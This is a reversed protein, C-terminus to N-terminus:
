SICRSVLWRGRRRGDCACAGGLCVVHRRLRRGGGRAGHLHRAPLAARMALLLGAIRTIVASDEGSRWVMHILKSDFMGSADGTMSGATVCSACRARRRGRRHLLARHAARDPPARRGRADRRHLLSLVSRGRGRVHGRVAGGEGDRRLRGLSRHGGRAPAVAQDRVLVHGQGRPRRGRDLREVPGSLYGPALAPLPVAVHSASAGSDYPVAVDKGGSSVKLVALQVNENFDLTLAKPAAALEAGAAPSTSLLKAHALVMLPFILVAAAAALRFRNTM